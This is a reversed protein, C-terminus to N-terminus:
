GFNGLANIKHLLFGQLVDIYALLKHLTDGFRPNFFIKLAINDGSRFLFFHARPM